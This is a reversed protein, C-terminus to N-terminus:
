RARAFHIFRQIEASDLERGPMLAFYSDSWLADPNLKRDVAQAIKGARQKLETIAEQVPLDEPVGAQISVYDEQVSLAHVQWHMEELQFRLAPPMTQIVEPSLSVHDDRVLWLLAYRTLPVVPQGATEEVPKGTLQAAEAQTQSLAEELDEIQTDLDASQGDDPEPTSRLATVLQDFQRRIAGMALNGAFALSLSYADQTGRTYLVYDTGSAEVRVFRIRADNSTASWDDDITRRLLEIEEVPMEGAYAVIDGARALLVLDATAELAASTLGLALRAVEPNGKEAAVVDALPPLTPALPDEEEIVEDNLDPGPAAAPQGPITAPPPPPAPTSPEPTTQRRTEGPLTAPPPPPPPTAAQELPTDQYTASLVDSDPTDDVEPVDFDPLADPGAAPAAPAEAQPPPSEQEPVDPASVLETPQESPDDPFTEPLLRPALFDPETVYRQAEQEWSPLPKIRPAGGAAQERVQLMFDDLSFTMPSTEDLALELARLAASTTPLYSADLAQPIAPAGTAPSDLGPTSAPPPPVTRVSASSERRRSARLIQVIEQLNTDGVGLMLDSVTGGEEFSPPPPEEAALKQFVGVAEESERKAPPEPPVQDFAERLAAYAGTMVFEVTRDDAYGADSMDVDITETGLEGELGGVRVLVSDLSSFSPEEIAPPEPEPARPPAAPPPPASAAPRAAPAGPATNASETDEEGAHDAGRTRPAVGGLAREVAAEVERATAPMELSGALRLDRVAGSVEPTDPTAIIAMDPAVSRMRLVIDRGPVRPLSFDILAADQRPSRRLYDLAADATTFAAVEFAGTAELAKKLTIAQKLNRNLILLRKM